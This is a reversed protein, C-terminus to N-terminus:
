PRRLSSAPNSTRKRGSPGPAGHYLDRRSSVGDHNRSRRGEVGIGAIASGATAIAAELPAEDERDCRGSDITAGPARRLDRGAAVHAEEGAGGGGLERAETGAPAAAGVGRGSGGGPHAGRRGDRAGETEDVLSREVPAANVRQRRPEPHGRPVQAAKKQLSQARRGLRHRQGPTRVEGPVEGLLRVERHGGHRHRRPEAAHPAEVAGDPPSEPARRAVEPAHRAAGAPGLPEHEPKGVVGREIPLREQLKEGSARDGTHLHYLPSQYRRVIRM